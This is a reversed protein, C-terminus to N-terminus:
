RRIVILSRFLVPKDIELPNVTEPTLFAQFYGSFLMLFTATLAATLIGTVPLPRFMVVVQPTIVEQGFSQFVPPCDFKQRHPLFPGYRGLALSKCLALESRIGEREPGGGIM